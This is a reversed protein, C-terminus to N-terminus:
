VTASFVAFFKLPSNKEAAGQICLRNPRIVITMQGAPLDSHM